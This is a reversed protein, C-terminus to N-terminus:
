VSILLLAILAAMAYVGKRAAAFNDMLHSCVPALIPLLIKCGISFCMRVLFLAAPLGIILAATLSILQGTPERIYEMYVEAYFWETGFATPTRKYQWEFWTGLHMLAVWLSATGLSLLVAYFLQKFISSAQKILVFLMVALTLSVLATGIIPIAFYNLAHGLGARSVSPMLAIGAGFFAGGVLVAVTLWGSISQLRPWGNAFPIAPFRLVGAAADTMLGSFTTQRWNDWWSRHRFAATQRQERGMGLDAIVILIAPALILVLLNDALMM